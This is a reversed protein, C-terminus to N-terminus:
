RSLAAQHASYIYRRVIIFARLRLLADKGACMEGGRGLGGARRRLPVPRATVSLLFTALIRISACSPGSRCFEIVTISFDPRARASQRRRCCVVM